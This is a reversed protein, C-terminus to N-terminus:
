RKENQCRTEQKWCCLCATNSEGVQVVIAIIHINVGGCRSPKQADSTGGNHHSTAAVSCSSLRTTPKVLISATAPDSIWVSNLYERELPAVIELIALHSLQLVRGFETEHRKIGSLELGNRTLHEDPQLRSTSYKERSHTVCPLTRTQQNVARCVSVGSLLFYLIDPVIQGNTEFPVFDNGRSSLM